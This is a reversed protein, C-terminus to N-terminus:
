LDNLFRIGASLGEISISHGIGHCTVITAPIELSELNRKALSANSYPVSSDDDSHVILVKANKALIQKDATPVFMGSYAVVRKVNKSCNLSEFSLMAGQSFGVVSVDDCEFEHSLEDIYESLIRAITDLGDRIENYSMDRLKFWQYGYGAECKFPANPAFVLTDKMETSLSQKYSPPFDEWSSGYGHLFIVIKKVSNFEASKLVNNKKLM